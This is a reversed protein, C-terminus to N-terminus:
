KLNPTCYGYSTLIEEASFMVTKFKGLPLGIWVMDFIKKDNEKLPKTQSSLLRRAYNLSLVM